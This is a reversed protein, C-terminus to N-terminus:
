SKAANAYNLLFTELDKPVNVITKIYDGAKKGGMGIFISGNVKKYEALFDKDKITKDWAARMTAAIPELLPADRTKSKLVPSITAPSFIEIEGIAPGGYNPGPGSPFGTSRFRLAYAEVPRVLKYEFWRDGEGNKEEFVKHEYHGNGSLDVEFVYGSAPRRGSQKHQFLRIRTIPLKRPFIFELELPMVSGNRIPLPAVMMLSRNQNAIDVKGDVLYRISAGLYPSSRIESLQAINNEATAPSAAVLLATLTAALYRPILRRM